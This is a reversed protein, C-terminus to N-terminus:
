GFVALGARGMLLRGVHAMPWPCPLAPCPMLMSTHEEVGASNEINAGTRHATRHWDAASSTALLLQRRVANGRWRGASPASRGGVRSPSSKAPILHAQGVWGVVQTEMTQFAPRAQAREQSSCGLLIVELGEFAVWNAAPQDPEVGEPRPGESGGRGVRRRM